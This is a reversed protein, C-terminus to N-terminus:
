NKGDDEGTAATQEMALKAAKMKDRRRRAAGRERLALTAAAQREGESHYAELAAESIRWPGRGHREGKLRGSELYRRITKDSLRLYEAVEKITYLRGRKSQLM